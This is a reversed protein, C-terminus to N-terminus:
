EFTSDRSPLPAPRFTGIVDSMALISHDASDIDIDGGCAGASVGLWSAFILKKWHPRSTIPYNHCTCHQQASAGEKRREVSLTVHM